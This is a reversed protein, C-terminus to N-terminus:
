RWGSSRHSSMSPSRAFRGPLSAEGSCMVGLCSVSLRSVTVGAASTGVITHDTPQASQVTETTTTYGRVEAAGPTNRM